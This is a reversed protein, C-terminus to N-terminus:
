QLCVATTSKVKGNGEKRKSGLWSSFPKARSHVGAMTHQWLNLAAPIMSQVELVTALSLGKRKILQNDKTNTVTISIQSDCHWNVVINPIDGGIQIHHEM